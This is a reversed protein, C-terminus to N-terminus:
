AQPVEGNALYVLCDACIELHDGRGTHAIFRDGGLTSGCLECPRWSFSGEDLVDQREIADQFKVREFGRGSTFGYGFRDRCTPCDCSVSADIDTENMSDGLRARGENVRKEYDVSNENL